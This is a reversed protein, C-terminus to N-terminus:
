GLAELLAIYATYKGVFEVKVTSLQHNTWEIQDDIVYDVFRIGFTTAPIIEPFGSLKDNRLGFRGPTFIGRVDQDDLSFKLFRAQIATQDSVKENIVVTFEIPVSVLGTAPRTTERVGVNPVDTRRQPVGVKFAVVGAAISEGIGYELGIAESNAINAETDIAATLRYISFPSTTSDAM